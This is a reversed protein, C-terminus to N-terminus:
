RRLATILADLKDAIAQVETEAPPSSVTLNLLPVGNSNASSNAAATALATTIADALQTATVEGPPGQIGQSGDNGTFGRPIGFSLRVASGDFTAQVTANDGPNLTAVGDIVFNTFVPGQAGQPGDNGMVGRPIGFTFHVNTGDFSVSVSAADGPNLTNVADIIAQAFPPGQAGDNGPIGQPGVPISQILDFLAVLQERMVQSVLPAHNAPLNPDFM